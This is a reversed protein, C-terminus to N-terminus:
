TADPNISHGRHSAMPLSQGFQGKAKSPPSEYNCSVELCSSSILDSACRQACGGARGAIPLCFAKPFHIHAIAEAKAKVTGAWLKRCLAGPM